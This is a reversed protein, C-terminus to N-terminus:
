FLTDLRDFDNIGSFREKNLKLIFEQFSNLIEFIEPDKIKYHNVYDQIESEILNANKLKNLHQSITSQTKELKDQIEGQTMNREKLSFLIELRTNDALVKFFEIMKDLLEIM